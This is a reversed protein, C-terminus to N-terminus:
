TRGKQQAYRQSFEIISQIVEEDFFFEFATTPTLYDSLEPNEPPCMFIDTTAFPGTEDEVMAVVEDLTYTRCTSTIFLMTSLVQKM